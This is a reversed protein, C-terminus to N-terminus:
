RALCTTDSLMLLVDCTSFFCPLVNGVKSVLSLALKKEKVDNMRRRYEVEAADPDELQLVTLSKRHKSRHDLRRDAASLESGTMLKYFEPFGIASHGNDNLADIMEAAMEVTVGVEGMSTFMASLEVASIEGSHDEDCADFAERLVQIRYGASDVKMADRLAQENQLNANRAQRDAEAQEKFTDLADSM